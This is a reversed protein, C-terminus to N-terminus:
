EQVSEEKSEEQTESVTINTVSQTSIINGNEDETNITIIVEINNFDNIVQPINTVTRHLIEQQNGLYVRGQPTEPNEELLTFLMGLVDVANKPPQIVRETDLKILYKGFDSIHLIDALIDNDFKIEVHNM